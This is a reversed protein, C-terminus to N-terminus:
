FRNRSNDFATSLQLMTADVTLTLTSRSKNIEKNEPEVFSLAIEFGKVHKWIRKERMQLICLDWLPMLVEECLCMHSSWRIQASM